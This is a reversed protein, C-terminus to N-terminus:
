PKGPAGGKEESFKWSGADSADADPSSDRRVLSYGEGDAEVPWPENDEYTVSVLEEGDAARIVIKERGNGLNGQYTEAM